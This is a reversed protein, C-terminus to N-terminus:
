SSKLSIPQTKHHLQKDRSRQARNTLVNVFVKSLCMELSNNESKSAPDCFRREDVVVEVEVTDMPRMLSRNCHRIRIRVGAVASVIDYAVNNVRYVM